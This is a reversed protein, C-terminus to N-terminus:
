LCPKPLISKSAIAMKNSAQVTLVTLIARLFHLFFLYVYKRMVQNAGFALVDGDDTLVIDIIKLENM